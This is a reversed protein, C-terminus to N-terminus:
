LRWSIGRDPRMREAQWAEHRAVVDRMAQRETEAIGAGELNERLWAVVHGTEPLDFPNKGEAEAAAELREWASRRELFAARAQAMNEAVALWETVAQRATDSSAPNEALSGASAVLDRWGPDEVVHTGRSAAADAHDRCAEQWGRYAEHAELRRRALAAAEELRRRDQAGLDSDRAAEGARAIVSGLDGKALHAEWDELQRRVDDARRRARNAAARARERRAERAAEDEVVPRPPTATEEPVRERTVPEVPRTGDISPEATEAAATASAAQALREHRAVALDLRSKLTAPLAPDAALGRADGIMAEAAAADSPNRGDWAALWTDAQRRAEARADFATVTAAIRDRRDQELAPDAQFRRAREIAGAASGHDHVPIGAAEARKELVRWRTEWAGAHDDTAQRAFTRDDDALLADARRVLDELDPAEVM